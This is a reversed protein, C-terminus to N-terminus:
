SIPNPQIFNKISTPSSLKGIFRKLARPVKEPNQRAQQLEKRVAVPEIQAFRAELSPQGNLLIALVFGRKMLSEGGTDRRM